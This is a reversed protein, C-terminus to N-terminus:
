SLSRATTTLVGRPLARRTSTNERPNADKPLDGVLVLGSVAADPAPVAEALAAGTLPPALFIVLAMGFTSAARKM